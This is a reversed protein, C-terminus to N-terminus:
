QEPSGKRETKEQFQQHEKCMNSLPQRDKEIIQALEKYIINVLGKDKLCQFYKTVKLKQCKQSVASISITALRGHTMKHNTSNTKTKGEARQDRHFKNSHTSCPLPTRVITESDNALQGLPGERGWHRGETM